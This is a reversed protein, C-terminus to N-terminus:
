VHADDQSDTRDCLNKINEISISETDPEIGLNELEDNKFKKNVKKSYKCIANVTFHALSLELAFFALIYVTVLVKNATGTEGFIGVIYGVFIYIFALKNLYINKCMDIFAQENYTIEGTNNDRHIMRSKAFSKVLNSRKTSFAYLLLLLAGSLQLSIAGVYALVSCNLM